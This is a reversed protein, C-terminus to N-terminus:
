NGISFAKEIQEELQRIDRDVFVKFSQKQVQERFESLSFLVLLAFSLLEGKESDGFDRVFNESVLEINCSFRGLHENLENNFVHGVEVVHQKQIM